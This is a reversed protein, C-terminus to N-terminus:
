CIKLGKVAEKEILRNKDKSIIIDVPRFFYDELISRILEKKEIRDKLSFNNVPKIFIDIDSGKKLKLFSGFIYIESEGFYDIVTKKIFEIDEKKV